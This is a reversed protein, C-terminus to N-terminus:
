FQPSHRSVNLIFKLGIHALLNFPSALGMPKLLKRSSGMMKLSGNFGVEIGILKALSAEGYSLGCRREYCLGVQILVIRALLFHFRSALLNPCLLSSFSIEQFRTTSVIKAHEGFSFLFLFRGVM